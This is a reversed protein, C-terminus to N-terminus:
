AAIKSEQESRLPRPRLAAEVDSYDVLKQRADRPNEYLTIGHQKLIKKLTNKSVGAREQAEKLPILEGM